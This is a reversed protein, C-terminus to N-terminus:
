RWVRQSFLNHTTLGDAMTMHIGTLPFPGRTLELTFGALGDRVHNICLM